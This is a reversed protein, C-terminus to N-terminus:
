VWQVRFDHFPVTAPLAGLASSVIYLIYIYIYVIYINYIVVGAGAKRLGKGSGERPGKGRGEQSYILWM